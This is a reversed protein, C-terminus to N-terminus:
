YRTPWGHRPVDGGARGDSLEVDGESPVGVLGRTTRRSEPMARSGREVQLERRPDRSRAWFSRTSSSTRTFSATSASYPSGTFFYPLRELDVVDDRELEPARIVDRVEERLLRVGIRAVVDLVLELVLQV